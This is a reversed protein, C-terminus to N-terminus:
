VSNTKLFNEPTKEHDVPEVVDRALLGEARPKAPLRGEFGRSGARSNRRGRPQVEERLIDNKDYVDCMIHRTCCKNLSSLEVSFM